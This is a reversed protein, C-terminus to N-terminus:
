GSIYAVGERVACPRKDSRMKFSVVDKRRREVHVQSWEPVLGVREGGREPRQFLLAELAQDDLGEPLPWSLGARSARSVYDQVTSPAVKVARAADRQSLGCAQVLRLTEKIKRMSIRQRAM